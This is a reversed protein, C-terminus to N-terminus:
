RQQNLLEVSVDGLGCSINMLKDSGNELNVVNSLGSYNEEGIEVDGAGVKIKYNFDEYMHYLELEVNGTGCDIDANGSIVGDFAIDGIGVSLKCQGLTGNTIECEGVGVNFTANAAGVNRFTGEGAGVDVELTEAQLDGCILEGAGVGLTVTQLVADKPVYIQIKVSDKWWGFLNEENSAVTLTGEALNYKVYESGKIGQICYDSEDWVLIEYEGANGKLTLNKVETQSFRNGNAYIDTMNDFSADDVYFDEGWSISLRNNKLDRTVSDFGGTISGVIVLVIGLVALIGSLVLFIRRFKKM